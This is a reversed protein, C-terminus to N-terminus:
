TQTSELGTYKPMVDIIEKFMKCMKNDLEKVDKANMKVAEPIHLEIRNFTKKILSFKITNTQKQM